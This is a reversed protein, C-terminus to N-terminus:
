VERLQASGFQGETGFLGTPRIVLVVVLALFVLPQALAADFWVPTLGSILGVVLGGVIAGRFSGYGGIAMAAFGFLAFRDGVFVSASTVPAVMYGALCALAGAIAFAAVIVRAPNIGLLSAGERDSILARLVLGLDTRMLFRDLLFTMVAAVLVMAIYIPRIPVDALTFADNSVYSPVTEQEAGFWIEVAATIALGLGLTSVLAEHTLSEPRHVFARIAALESLMGIVVGALIVLAIVPVMPLDHEVGLTYALVAGLSVLAGQAFNFVGSAALILTYGLAVLVYISGLGLGTVIGIGILQMDM